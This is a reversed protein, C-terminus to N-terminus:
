ARVKLYATRGVCDFRAAVEPSLRESHGIYLMGGTELHDALRAQLQVMTPEDFYSRVNRCCLAYFRGKM